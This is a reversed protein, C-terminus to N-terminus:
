LGGYNTTVTAPHAVSGYDFQGAPWEVASGLAVIAPTGGEKLLYLRGDHTNLALEGPELDAVAPAKGPVASRKLKVKFAM